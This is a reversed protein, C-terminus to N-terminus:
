HISLCMLLNSFLQTIVGIVGIIQLQVYLSRVRPHSSLCKPFLNRFSMIIRDFDKCFFVQYTCFSAVKIELKLHLTSNSMEFTLFIMKVYLLM